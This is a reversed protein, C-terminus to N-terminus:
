ESEAGDSVVTLLHHASKLRLRISVFSASHEPWGFEITTESFLLFSLLSMRALQLNFNCSIAFFNFIDFLLTNVMKWSCKDILFSHKFHTSRKSMTSWFCFHMSSESHQKCSNWHLLFSNKCLYTVISSVHIWWKVGSHFQYDTSHAAAPTLHRFIYANAPLTKAEMNQSTCPIKNM